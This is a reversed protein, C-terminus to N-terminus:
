EGPGVRRETSGHRSHLRGPDFSLSSTGFVRDGPHLGIRESIDTVTNLASAHEILVGKPSGTSGSTYILYALDGPGGIRVPPPGSPRHCCLQSM